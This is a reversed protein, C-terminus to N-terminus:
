LPVTVVLMPPGEGPLTCFPTKMTLVDSIFVLYTNVPTISFYLDPWDARRKKAAEATVDHTMLTLDTSSTMHNTGVKVSNRSSGNPGEPGREGAPGQDSERGTECKQGEPSPPAFFVFFFNLTIPKGGKIHVITQSSAGDRVLKDLEM